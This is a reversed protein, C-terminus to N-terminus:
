PTLGLAAAGRAHDKRTKEIAYPKTISAFISVHHLEDCYVKTFTDNITAHEYVGKNKASCSATECIAWLRYLRMEKAHFGYAALDNLSNDAIFQSFDSNKV